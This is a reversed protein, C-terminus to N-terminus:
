QHGNKSSYTAPSYYENSGEGKTAKVAVLQGNNETIKATKLGKGGQSQEQVKMAPTRKKRVRKLQGSILVHSKKGELIEMGVVVDDCDTLHHRKREGCNKGDGSM